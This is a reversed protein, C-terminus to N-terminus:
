TLTLVIRPRAQRRLWIGLTMGLMAAASILGIDSITFGHAADLLGLLALDIKAAPIHM